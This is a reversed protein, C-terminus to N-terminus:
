NKKQEDLARRLRASMGLLTDGEDQKQEQARRNAMEARRDEARAEREARQKAAHDRRAADLAARDGVSVGVAGRQPKAPLSPLPIVLGAGPGGEADKMRLFKPSSVAGSPGKRDSRSSPTSGSTEVATPPRNRQPSLDAQRAAPSPGDGVLARMLSDVAGQDHSATRDGESRPAAHPALVDSGRVQTTHGNKLVDMLAHIDDPSGALPLPSEDPPNGPAAPVVAGPLGQGPAQGPAGPDPSLDTPAHRALLSSLADEAPAPETVAAEVPAPEAVPTQVPSAMDIRVFGRRALRQLVVELTSPELALESMLFAVSQGSRLVGLVKRDDPLMTSGRWAEEGSPTREIFHHSSLALM